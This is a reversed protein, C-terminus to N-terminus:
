EHKIKESMYWCYNCLGGNDTAAYMESWPIPAECRSCGDLTYVDLVDRRFVFKQKDTLSDMGKDIVLKTIGEAAGELSEGSLVEQLFDNFGDDEMHDNRGM